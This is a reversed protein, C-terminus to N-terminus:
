LHRRVRSWDNLIVARRPFREDTDPRPFIIAQLRNKLLTEAFAVTQGIGGSINEWGEEKLTLLLDHLSTSTKPLTRIMGPPFQQKRLWSQIAELRGKGSQDVYVLNYYFKSLKSLEAPAAAQPEGLILGPDPFVEPPPPDPDYEGEVLVALDVL